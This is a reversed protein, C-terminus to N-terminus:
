LWGAKEAIRIADVRNRAGIKHMIGSLYNRVTGGSLCLRAAIESNSAGESAAGLVELERTSLPLRVAAMLLGALEPDVVPQGQAVSRVAALFSAPPAEESVFGAAEVGLAKRMRGIQGKALLVLSGCSPLRRHLQRVMAVAPDGLRGLGLVAVDPRLRLATGVLANLGGIAAVVEIDPETDLLNALAGRFLPPEEALLLRIL